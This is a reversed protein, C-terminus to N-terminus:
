FGVGGGALSAVDDHGTLGGVLKNGSCPAVSTLGQTPQHIVVGGLLFFFM